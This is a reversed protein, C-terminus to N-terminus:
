AGSVWRLHSSHLHMARTIQLASFELEQSSKNEKHKTVAGERQQIQHREERRKGQIDTRRPQLLFCPHCGSNICTPLPRSLNLLTLRSRSLSLLSNLSPDRNKSIAELSPLCWGTSDLHKGERREKVRSKKRFHINGQKVSTRPYNTGNSPLPPCAVTLRAAM